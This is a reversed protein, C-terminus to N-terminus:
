LHFDEQRRRDPNSPWGHFVVCSLLLLLGAIMEQRWQFSSSLPQAGDARSGIETPIFLASIAGRIETPIEIQYRPDDAPPNSAFNEDAIRAVFFSLARPLFFSSIKSAFIQDGGICAMSQLEAHSLQKNM